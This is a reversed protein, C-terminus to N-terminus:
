IDTSIPSGHRRPVICIVIDHLSDQSAANSVTGCVPIIFTVAGGSVACSIVPTMCHHLDINALAAVPIFTSPPHRRSQLRPCDRLQVSSHMLLASPCYYATLSPLIREAGNCHAAPILIIQQICDVGTILQATDPPANVNIIRDAASDAIGRRWLYTQRVDDIHITGSSLPEAGYRRCRVYQSTSAESHRVAAQWGRVSVTSATM